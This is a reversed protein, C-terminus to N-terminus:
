VRTVNRIKLVVARPETISTLVEQDFQWELRADREEKKWSEGKQLLATGSPSLHRECFGLLTKLDALARASLIDAKQSDAEDIRACLVSANLGEERIVSRLFVCKRQDSDVLTFRMEPRLDRGLIAAVLGPFGGGSGIDLWSGRLPAAQFLQASDLIHRNWIVDITSKSVLNISPNWKRILAEYNRLSRLTGRSVNLGPLLPEADGM